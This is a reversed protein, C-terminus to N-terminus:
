GFVRRAVETFLPYSSLAELDLRGILARELLEPREFGKRDLGSFTAPHFKKVYRVLLFCIDHGGIVHRLDGDLRGRLEEYAFCLQDITIEARDEKRVSSLSRLMIERHDARFAGEKFLCLDAFGAILAPGGPVNRLVARMVFIDCLAESTSIILKETDVEGRIRLTMKLLKALTTQNFAYVEFSAFDTYLLCKAEPMADLGIAAFDRDAIFIASTQDAFAIDLAVACAILRGREGVNLGCKVIDADPFNVRDGIAYVHALENQDTRASLFWEVVAVDTNGEVFIDRLTPEIRYLTALEDVTYKNEDEPAM